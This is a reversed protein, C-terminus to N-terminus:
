FRIGAPNSPTPGDNVSPPLAPRAPAKPEAAPAAEVPKAAVLPTPAPQRYNSPLQSQKPYGAADLYQIWEADSFGVLQQGGITGFPLSTSGSLRQLAAIDENSAVTRETYPVGRSTLMNRLSGCPACDNGTYITVPYRNAVQRLEYPLAGNAAAPSATAAAPAAPSRAPPATTEAPPRDSFTVKGDPGVIRYVNQAQAGVSALAMLLSAAAPAFTTRPM